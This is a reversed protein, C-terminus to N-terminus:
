AHYRSKYVDWLGAMPDYVKEAQEGEDTRPKVPAPSKDGFPEKEIKNKFDVFEKKIDKVMNTVEVVSKNAATAEATKSDLQKQLEDIKALANALEKNEMEKQKVASITSNPGMVVIEGTAMEYEKEEAPSGNVQASKGAWDEGEDAQVTLISGDALTEEVVNKVKFKNLFNDLKEGFTKLMGKVEKNDEMNFQNIDFRAVAKLLKDQAEDIFGAAVAADADMWTAKDMMAGIEAESKAQLQPRKKYVSIIISKIRNLQEAGAIMDKSEGQIQGFPNHIMVQSPRLAVIKKGAQMILTAISAALGDIVVTVNPLSNLLHFIKIGENVEGGPSNLLVTHSTAKTNIQEKVDEYSVVKRGDSGVSGQAGIEGHIDIIGEM